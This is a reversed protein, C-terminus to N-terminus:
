QLNVDFNGGRDYLKRAQLVYVNSAVINSGGSDTAISFNITANYSVGARSVAIGYSLNTNMQQLTGADTDLTTDPYGATIDRVIYYSSANGDLLWTDVAQWGGYATQRYIKGDSGFRVGSFVSQEAEVAVRNSFTLLEPLQVKVANGYTPALNLLM